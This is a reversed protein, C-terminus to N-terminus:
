ATALPADTRYIDGGPCPLGLKFEKTYACKAIHHYEAIVVTRERDGEVTGKHITNTDFLFGGGRKGCGRIIEYNSEVFNDTFRTVPYNESKYYLLNQTGAAVKTPHGMECDVDNLFMFLKLRRGVRDHHYMGANYQDTTKLGNTLKTVKYGHLISPGLYANIVSALTENHILIDDLQPIPRRSTIISGGGAISTENKHYLSDGTLAAEALEIIKDTAGGFNDIAVFGNKQLAHFLKSTMPDELIRSDTPQSYYRYPSDLYWHIANHQNASFYLDRAAVLFPSELRTRVQELDLPPPFLDSFDMGLANWKVKPFDEQFMQMVERDSRLLSKSRNQFDLEIQEYIQAVPDPFLFAEKMAAVNQFPSPLNMDYHADDMACEGEGPRREKESSFWLKMDMMQTFVDRQFEAPYTSAATDSAATSCAAAIAETITCPWSPDIELQCDRLSQEDGQCSTVYIGTDSDQIGSDGDFAMGKATGAMFASQYGLQRCVVNAMKLDWTQKSCVYRWTSDYCLEVRGADGGSGFFRIDDRKV